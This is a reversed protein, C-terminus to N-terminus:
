KVVTLRLRAKHGNYTKVTLTTKGRHRATVRGTKSVRAVGPHSSHFTLKNSASGSSLKVKLTFHRGKKVTKRNKAPKFKVKSPAKKINFRYLYSTEGDSVLISSKGRRRATVKGSADVTLLSPDNSTYSTYSDPIRYTEGKGLKITKVVSPLEAVDGTTNSTFAKVCVNNYGVAATDLWRMTSDPASTKQKTFLYSEGLRSGYSINLSSDTSDRGELPVYVNTSGSQVYTVVVSFKEGAALNVPTTLTATHYGNQGAIGTTTCESVLTGDTPGSGVGRYVEIRYPQNDTLTYFSVAKLTQDSTGNADFINAAKLNHSNSYNATGWGFGDYQYIHDYNGASEVLFSSCDCISQDYYSLWFYGNDGSVTGYSNAILWAGNGAPTRSFNSASFNDDWGVITVSHNANKVAQAGSYYTQYYAHGNASPHLFTKDFFVSVSMAGHDLISQKMKPIISADTYYYQKGITYEDYNYVNQLHAYSDYRLSGKQVMSYAMSTVDSTTAGSFPATSELEPGSWKALTFTALIASGGNDYPLTGSVSGYAFPNPFFSTNTDNDASSIGDWYTPDEALTSPHYSFWALHSESFDVSDAPFLGNKICNSEITKIASFAWCCGTSGQDRIPTTLGQERLDYRVPLDSAKKLRSGSADASEDTYVNGSVDEFHSRVLDNDTTEDVRSIMQDISDTSAMVSSPCSTVCLSLGLLAALATNRYTITRNIKIM